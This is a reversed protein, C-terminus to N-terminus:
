IALAVKEISQLRSWRALQQCLPAM